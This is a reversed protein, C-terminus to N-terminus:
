TPIDFQDEKLSLDGPAMSAILWGGERKADAGALLSWDAVLRVRRGAPFTQLSKSSIESSLVLSCDFRERYLSGNRGSLRPGLAFAMIGTLM